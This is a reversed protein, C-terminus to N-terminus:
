KLLEQVFNPLVFCSKQIDRNHYRTKLDALKSNDLNLPDHQKSALTFCHTGSPYLPIQALYMRTVPFLSSLDKWVRKILDTHLFPSETQQVFIGDPKLARLANQYFASNFLGEGPGIPDSCDVIIVDYHNEVEQVHRIGDDIRLDLKPHKAILAEAIEPLYQKCIDVVMGDIEVMVAKEISPHKLVERITGGDGGGVVLVRKPNPHTFLPVHAIMEHYVYEDFISTQYVGDLVLMRGFHESEVVAIEQFDSKGSYLTQKIRTALGLHPTQFETMWLDM